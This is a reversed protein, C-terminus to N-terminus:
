IIGSVRSQLCIQTDPLGLFPIVTYLCDQSLRAMHPRANDQQFIAGQLRQMLPLEHPQLIDHHWPYRQARMTVRILVLPSRTNYANGVWVMMSATPVTHRQVTFAPNLHEGRPRWVRAHKDDSSLNFRSEDSFVVQNQEATDLHRGIFCNATRMCKKRHPLRRSSQVIKRAVPRASWGTEMMSLIREREFQSLQEYQRQFHRLPM